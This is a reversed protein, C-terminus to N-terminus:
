IAETHIKHVLWRSITHTCSTVDIEPLSQPIAWPVTHAWAWVGVTSSHELFQRFGVWAEAHCVKCGPLKNVSSVQIWFEPRPMNEFPLVLWTVLKLPGRSVFLPTGWLLYRHCCGRQSIVGKESISQLVFRRYCALNIRYKFIKLDVSYWHNQKQLGQLM